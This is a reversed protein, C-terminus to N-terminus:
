PESPNVLLPDEAISKGAVVCYEGSRLVPVRHCPDIAALAGKTACDFAAGGTTRRADQDFPAQENAACEVVAATIAEVRRRESPISVIGIITGSRGSPWVVCHDAGQYQI